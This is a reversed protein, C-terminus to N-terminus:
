WDGDDYSWNTAPDTPSNDWNIAAAPKEPSVIKPSTSKPSLFPKTPHTPAEDPSSDQQSSKFEASTVSTMPNYALADNEGDSFNNNTLELSEVYQASDWTEEDPEAQNSPTFETSWIHGNDRSGDWNTSEPKRGEEVQYRGGPPGRKGEGRGRNGGTGRGGRMDREVGRRGPGSVARSGADSVIMNRGQKNLMEQMRLRAAELDEKSTKQVSRLDVTKAESSYPDKLTVVRSTVVPPEPVPEPELFTETPPEPEPESYVPLTQETPPPPPPPPAYSQAPLQSDPLTYVPQTQKPPAKSPVPHPLPQTHVAPAQSPASDSGAGASWNYYMPISNVIDGLSLVASLVAEHEIELTHVDALQQDSQKDALFRKISEAVEETPAKKGQAILKQALKKRQEFIEHAQTKGSEINSFLLQHREALSSQLQQFVFQLIQLSNDMRQHLMDQWQSLQSSQTQLQLLLFQINSSTGLSLNPSVRQPPATRQVHLIDPYLSHIPQLHSNPLPDLPSPVPVPVPHYSNTPLQPATPPKPPIPNSPKSARWDSAPRPELNNLPKSSAGPPGGSQEKPAATPENKKKKRSKKSTSKSWEGILEKAGEENIRRVTENVNFDNTRLLYNIDQKSQGPCLRNVQHIREMFDAPEHQANDAIVHNTAPDLFEKEKRHKSM